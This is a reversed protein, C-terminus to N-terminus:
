LMAWIEDKIAQEFKEEETKETQTTDKKSKFSANNSLMQSMMSRNM